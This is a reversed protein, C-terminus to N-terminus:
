NTKACKTSWIGCTTGLNNKNTTWFGCTTGLNNKQINKMLDKKM